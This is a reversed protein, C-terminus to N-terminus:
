WKGFIQTGVTRAFNEVRATLGTHSRGSPVAPPPTASTQHDAPPDCTNGTTGPPYAAEFYGFDQASHGLGPFDGFSSPEAFDKEASIKAM